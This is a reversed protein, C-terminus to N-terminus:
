YQVCAANTTLQKCDLGNSKSASNIDWKANASATTSKVTECQQLALDCRTGVLKTLLRQMVVDMHFVAALVSQLSYVSHM